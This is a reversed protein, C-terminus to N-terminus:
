MQTSNQAYAGRPYCIKKPIFKPISLAEVEKRNLRATQATTYLCARVAGKGLSMTPTVRVWGESTNCSWNGDDVVTTETTKEGLLLVIVLTEDMATAETAEMGVTRSSDGNIASAQGIVREEGNIVPLMPSFCRAPKTMDHLLCINSPMSKDFRFPHVEVEADFMSAVKTAASDQVFSEICDEVSFGVVDLMVEQIIGAIAEAVGSAGQKKFAIAVTFIEGRFFFTTAISQYKKRNAL